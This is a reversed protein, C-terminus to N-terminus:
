FNMKIKILMKNLKKALLESYFYKDNFRDHHLGCFYYKEFKKVVM